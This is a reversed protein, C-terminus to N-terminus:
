KIKNTRLCHMAYPQILLVGSVIGINTEVATWKSPGVFVWTEDLSPVKYANLMIILRVISIICISTHGIRNTRRSQM